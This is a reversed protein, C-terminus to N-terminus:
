ILRPQKADKRNRIIFLAINNQNLHTERDRVSYKSSEALGSEVCIQVFSEFVKSTIKCNCIFYLRLNCIAYALRLIHQLYLVEWNLTVGRLNEM